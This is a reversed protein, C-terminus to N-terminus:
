TVPSTATPRVSETTDACEDPKITWGQLAVGQLNM